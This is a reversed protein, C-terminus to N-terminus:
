SQAAIHDPEPALASAGPENDALAYCLAAMLALAAGNAYQRPGSSRRTGDQVWMGDHHGYENWRRERFVRAYWGCPSRVTLPRGVNYGWGPFLREILSVAPNIDGITIATHALMAVEPYDERSMLEKGIDNALTTLIPNHQETPASSDVCRSGANLWFDRM